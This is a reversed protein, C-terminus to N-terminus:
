YDSLSKLFSILAQRESQKLKFGKILPSKNPHNSGGSEYHNIVEDLNALSGDVMYPYTTEINRLSPVKFKGMDEPLNTFRNRGPDNYVEYLGNNYFNFDTFLVGTHCKGCNLSDSYFLQRGLEEENSLKVKGELFKDYKSNVSLLTREYAAIARLVAYVQYKEMIKSEGPFIYKAKILLDIFEQDSNLKQLITNWDSDFENHEQVPVLIQQELTPVAGEKLFKDFFVVNFISPVNRTGPRNEIGATTKDNNAFAINPNHCSACSLSNDRSLINSFFLKRGLEVRENTLKNDEPINYKPFHKPINLVIEESPLNEEGCSALFILCTIFILLKM